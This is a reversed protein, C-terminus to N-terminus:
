AAAGTAKVYETNAADWTGILSDMPEKINNEGYMFTYYYYFNGAVDFGAAIGTWKEIQQCNEYYGNGWLSFILEINEYNANLDGAGKRIGNITNQM